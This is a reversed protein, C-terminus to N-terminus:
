GRGDDLLSAAEMLLNGSIDLIGIRNGSRQWPCPLAPSRLGTLLRGCTHGLHRIDDVSEAEITL